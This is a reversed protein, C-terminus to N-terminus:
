LFNLSGNVIFQAGTVVKLASGQSFTVVGSVICSGGASPNIIVHHGPLILAPPVENNTWNAPDNWNGNGVFFYVKIVEIAGADPSTPSRPLGNIDKLAGVPLGTNQVLPSLPVPNEESVFQPDANVSHQDFASGLAAQWDGWTTYNVSKYSAIVNTGGSVNMYVVNNDIVPLETFSGTFSYVAKVAPGNRKLYFINNHIRSEGSNLQGFAGMTGSSLTATDNLIITNHHVHYYSGILFIGSVSGRSRINYIINNRITSPISWNYSSTYFYLARFTITQQPTADFVNHIRNNEVLLGWSALAQLGDWSNGISSRTPRLIDNGSVHFRKCGSLLFAVSHADQLRNNIVRNGNLFSNATDTSAGQARINYYGGVITNNEITNFNAGRFQGSYNLLIGTHENIGTSTKSTIILCNKITNSDAQDSLEIGVGYNGGGADITLSDITVHDAGWLTIASRDALVSSSYVLREGNGKITITNTASAGTVPPITVRENYPGSQPVVNFVVPGTIGCGMASIADAFSSFNNQGTPIYKNITYSGAALPPVPCPLVTIHFGFDQWTSNSPAGGFATASAAYLKQTAAGPATSSYTEIGGGTKGSHTVDVVLPKLPDFPFANALPIAFWGGQVASGNITYSAANLVETMGTHFSTGAFGTGSAPQKLSIKLNTYTAAQGTTSSRWYITDIIGVTATGSFNTPNYWLQTRQPNTNFPYNSTTSGCCRQVAPTQAESHITALFFAIALLRCQLNM